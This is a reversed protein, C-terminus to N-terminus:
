ARGTGLEAPTDQRLARLFANYVPASWSSRCREIEALAAATSMATRYSRTTTLADYVDVIGVIQASLPIQDGILRDPYGSGDYREHHWRIIPKLDWPFEVDVLMEIGWIPHMQVVKFEDRTLAAPKNLIEHPVKVKGLDHLYAGLRIAVQAQADLGLEIAVAVANEAVRECHGFTYSDNSEISEGWQRVVVLYTDELDAIRRRVNVQDARADLRGFLRHAADMLTLADQNRGMGQYVLALARTAEAEALVSGSAVALDIATRLRSEALASRGTERYVIGIVRYAGSKHDTAGLLDFIALSEEANKRAEDYRQRAILVDAHNVLCLGQMRVDGTRKAIALSAAFNTEAEDLDDRDAHLMGLNHYSMACGHEDGITQFDALSAAYHAVAMDLHGHINAIIGLNQRVRAHLRSDTGGLALAAWFHDTSEILSGEQLLMAGVTNLAEAELLRDGM